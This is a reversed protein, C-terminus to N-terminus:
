LWPGAYNFDKSLSSYTHQTNSSKGEIFLKSTEVLSMEINQKSRAKCWAIQVDDDLLKGSLV